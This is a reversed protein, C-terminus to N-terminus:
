GSIAALRRDLEAVDDGSKHDALWRRRVGQLRRRRWPDRGVALLDAAQLLLGVAHEGDGEQSHAAALDALRAAKWGASPHRKVMNIDLESIVSQPQSLFIRCMSREVKIEVESQVGLGILDRDFAGRQSLARVASELDREAGGADGVAAHHVSRWAYFTSAESAPPKPGMLELAQNLLRIAEHPDGSAGGTTSFSYLMDVRVALVYAQVAPHRSEKALGSALLSYHLAEPFCEMRYLLLGALLAAEAAGRRLEDGIGTPAGTILELYNRLHAQLAPIILAPSGRRSQAIYLDNLGRMEDATVRDVGLGQLVRGVREMDAVAGAGLVGLFERRQVAQMIQQKVRNIEAEEYLLPVADDLFAGGAAPGLVTAFGILDEWDPVARGAEVYALWRESKDLADAMVKVPRGSRHRRMCMGLARSGTV